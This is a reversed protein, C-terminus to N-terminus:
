KLIKRGELLSVRRQSRLRALEIGVIVVSIVVALWALWDGFRSYITLDSRFDYPADLQGRIDPVLEAAYRGYPDISATYGNNTDRLMWRRNEVARVRAMMLHQPPAASRGFWGDNSVNILLEAGHEAFERVENAFISEYCIFVGFKGTPLVGVTRSAGSTFDSVEATLHHAFILLNALPVYEGFPVLHVKDYSYLRQGDPGLLVVSNFAEYNGQPPKRWEVVGILLGEGVERAMREARTAFRPDAFSFPAPVEPWVVLGPNRHAADISIRELEDLEATHQQMWDPPYRESQPFNTQVLHAIYRAAQQPVLRPGQWVVLALLAMTAVATLVSRRTRELIAWALVANVAVVLFSLGYIGTVSAIQLVALSAGAPYGSLNWPFGIFPLNERIFEIALWLFPAALCARKLKRRSLFAVCACFGGVLVGGAVTMLGLVGAADIKGLNGFQRMVIYIWPLTMPFFLINFCQGCLMADGTTAGASAVVLPALAVWVFFPLNYNPFALSLLFGSALALLLRVPRTLKM